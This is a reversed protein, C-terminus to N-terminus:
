RQNLLALLRLVELYLWVLTVTVGFAGYWEMYKPAGQQSMGEIFAFDIALNLAAVIVIGVSVAIGLASPQNFFYFDAGFLSAVWAVLYMLMIAFTAAVVVMVFRNTVKIIRTAYLVFMVLAIALTALVAQAVIGNWMYNYLSSVAGVVIGYSVAYLPATIRAAKPAFSTAIAFGFGVLGAVFIWWPWSPAPVVTQGLSNVYPEPASVQSWGFAAAGVLLVLLVATATLSGGITMTSYTGGGARAERTQEAFKDNTLVPSGSFRAM